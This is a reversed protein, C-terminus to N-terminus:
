YKSIAVLSFYFVFKKVLQWGAICHWTVVLTVASFQLKQTTLLYKEM